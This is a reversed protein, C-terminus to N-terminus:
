PLTQLLSLVKQGTDTGQEGPTNNVPRSQSTPKLVHSDIYNRMYILRKIQIELPLISSLNTASNSQIPTTPPLKTLALSPRSTPKIM